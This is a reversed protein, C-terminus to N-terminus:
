TSAAEILVGAMTRETSLAAGDRRLNRWAGGDSPIVTPPGSVGDGDQIEVSEDGSAITRGTVTHDATRALMGLVQPNQGFLSAYWDHPKTCIINVTGGTLFDVKAGGNSSHLPTAPRSVSIPPGENFTGLGVEWETGDWACYPFVDGDAAAPNSDVFRVFPAVRATPQFDGLGPSAATEQTFPYFKYDAM